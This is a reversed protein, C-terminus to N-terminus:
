VEIVRKVTIGKLWAIDYILNVIEAIDYGKFTVSITMWNLMHQERKEYDRFYHLVSNVLERLEKEYARSAVFNVVVNEGDRVASFEIVNMM